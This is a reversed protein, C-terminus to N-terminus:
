PQGEQKAPAAALMVHYLIKARSHVRSRMAESEGTQGWYADLMDETPQAPVLQWGAVDQVQASLASRIDDLSIGMFETATAPAQAIVATALDVLTQSVAATTAFQPEAASLSRLKVLERCAADMAAYAEPQYGTIGAGIIKMWKDLDGEFRLREQEASPLHSQATSFNGCQCHGGRMIDGCPCLEPLAKVAVSPAPQKPHAEAEAREAQVIYGMLVEPLTGFNKWGYDNLGQRIARSLLSVRAEPIHKSAVEFATKVPEAASLAAELARLDRVTCLEVWQGSGGFAGISEDPSMDDFAISKRKLEESQM